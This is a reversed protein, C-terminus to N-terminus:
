QVSPMLSGRRKEPHTILAEHISSPLHKYYVPLDPWRSPDIKARPAREGSSPLSSAGAKRRDWWCPPRTRTSSRLRSATCLPQPTLWALTPTHKVHKVCFILQIWTSRLPASNKLGGNRDRSSARVLLIIVPPQTPNLRQGPWVLALLFHHKAILIRPQIHPTLDGLSKRIHSMQQGCSKRLPHRTLHLSLNQVSWSMDSQSEHSPSQLRVKVYFSFSIVWLSWSWLRYFHRGNVGQQVSMISVQVSSLDGLSERSSM